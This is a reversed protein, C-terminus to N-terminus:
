AKWTVLSTSTHCVLGYHGVWLGPYEVMYYCTGGNIVQATPWCSGHQWRWCGDQVNRGLSLWEYHETPHLVWLVRGLQTRGHCVQSSPSRDTSCGAWQLCTYTHLEGGVADSCHWMYVYAVDHLFKVATIVFGPNSFFLKIFGPCTKLNLFFGFVLWIKPIKAACESYLDYNCKM